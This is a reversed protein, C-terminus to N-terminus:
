KQKKLEERNEEVFKVIREYVGADLDKECGDLDKALGRLESMLMPRTMGLNDLMWRESREKGNADTFKFVAPLEKIM